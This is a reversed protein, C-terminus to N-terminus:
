KGIIETWKDDLQEWYDKGQEAHAWVFANTIYYKPNGIVMREKADKDKDVEAMFNDYADNDKLFKIFETTM